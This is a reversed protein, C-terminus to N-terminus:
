LPKFYDEEIYFVGSKTTCYYRGNHKCIWTIENGELGKANYDIGKMAKGDSQLETITNNRYYFAKGDIDILNFTYMEYNSKGWTHGGDLSFFLEYYSSLGYMVGNVKSLKLFAKNAIKEFHGVSDMAYLAEKTSTNDSFYYKGGDFLHLYINSYHSPLPVPRVSAANRIDAIRLTSYSLNKKDVVKFVYYGSPSGIYAPEMYGAFANELSLVNTDNGLYVGGFDFKKMINQYNVELNDRSGLNIFIDNVMPFTRYGYSLDGDFSTISILRHNKDFLSYSNLSRVMLIEGNSYCYSANRADNKVESVLKWHTDAPIEKDRKCALQFLILFFSIKLYKM